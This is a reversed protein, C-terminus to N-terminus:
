GSHTCRNRNGHQHTLPSRSCGATGNRLLRSRGLEPLLLARGMSGLCGSYKELRQRTNLIWSLGWAHQGLGPAWGTTMAGGLSVNTPAPHVDCQLVIASKPLTYAVSWCAKLCRQGVTYSTIRKVLCQTQMLHTNSVHLGWRGAALAGLWAMLEAIPPTCQQKCGRGWAWLKTIGTWLVYCSGPAGLSCIVATVAAPSCHAQQTQFFFFFLNRVKGTVPNSVRILLAFLIM